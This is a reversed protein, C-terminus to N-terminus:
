VYRLSERTSDPWSASYLSESEGAAGALMTTALVIKILRPREFRMPEKSGGALAELFSAPFAADIEELPQLVVESHCAFLRCHVDMDMNIYIYIYIYIYNYMYIYIYTYISLSLFLNTGVDM